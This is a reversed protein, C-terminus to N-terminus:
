KVLEGWTRFKVSSMLLMYRYVLVPIGAKVLKGVVTITPIELDRLEYDLVSLRLLAYCKINYGLSLATTPVLIHSSLLVFAATSIETQIIFLM